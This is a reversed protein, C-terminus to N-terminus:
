LVDNASGGKIVDSGAGGILLNRSTASGRIELDADRENAAYIAVWDQATVESADITMDITDHEGDCVAWNDATIVGVIEPADGEAAHLTLTDIGGTSEGVVLDTSYPLIDDEDLGALAFQEGVS